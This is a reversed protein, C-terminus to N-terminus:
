AYICEWEATSVFVPDWVGEGDPWYWWGGALEHLERLRDLDGRQMPEAEWQVGKGQLAEWLLRELGIRWRAAWCKESLASMHERLQIAHATADRATELEAGPALYARIAEDEDGESCDGSDVWESVRAECWQSGQCNGTLFVHLLCGCGPCWVEADDETWTPRGNIVSSAPIAPTGCEPCDLMSKIGDNIKTASSSM